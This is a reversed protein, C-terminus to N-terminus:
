LTDDTWTSKKELYGKRLLFPEYVVEITQSDEGILSALTELGVPGGNFNEM